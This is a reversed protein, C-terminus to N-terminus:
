TIVNYSIDRRNATEKMGDFLEQATKTKALHYLNLSSVNARTIKPARNNYAGNTGLGDWGHCQKCRFFDSSEALSALHTNNQNFGSETSWFKDYMIGGKSISANNYDVLSVDDPEDKECSTFISAFILLAFFLKMTKM